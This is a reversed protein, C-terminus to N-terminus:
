IILDRFLVLLCVIKNIDYVIFKIMKPLVLVRNYDDEKRTYFIRYVLHVINLLIMWHVEIM